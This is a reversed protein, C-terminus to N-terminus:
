GCRTTAPATRIHLSGGLIRAREGMSTVGLGQHTAQWTPEFGRGDDSITLRVCHVDRQLAVTAASASAHRSMNNLGEQVIRYVHTAAAGALLDDVSELRDTISVGTSRSINELLSQLSGTLGIREIHIPRLNQALARV